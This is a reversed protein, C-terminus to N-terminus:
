SSGISGSEDITCKSASPMWVLCLLSGQLHSEPVAVESGAANLGWISRRAGDTGANGVLKDNDQGHCEYSEEFWFPWIRVLICELLVASRAMLGSGAVETGLPTKGKM